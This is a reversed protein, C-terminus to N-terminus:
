FNNTPTRKEQKWQLLGDPLTNPFPEHHRRMSHTPTPIPKRKMSNEKHHHSIHKTIVDLNYSFFASFDILACNIQM